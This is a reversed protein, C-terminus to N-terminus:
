KNSLIKITTKKTIYISFVIIAVSLMFLALWAGGSLTLTALLGIRASHATTLILLLVPTAIIFGIFCGLTSIKAVIIQMQKAIFSDTAGVQNLIELEHKHLMAINRSIYSICVGISVLILLLVFSTISVLKWGASVSPKLATAHTLIKAKGAIQERIYEIDSANKVRIEFMQPLYNTLKAGSSIWPQMMKEMESKSIENVSEIKNANDNFIKKIANTNDLNTIQVTAYKDWQNNWRVVGGGISLAIGFALVSLFTLISVVITMFTSQEQVLSFVLPIKKMM